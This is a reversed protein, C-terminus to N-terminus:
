IVIMSDSSGHPYIQMSEYQDSSDVLELVFSDAFMISLLKSDV